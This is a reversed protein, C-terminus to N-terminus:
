APIFGIAEEESRSATVRLERRPKCFAGIRQGYPALVRDGSKGHRDVEPEVLQLPSYSAADGLFPKTSTGVFYDDIYKRKVIGSSWTSDDIGDRDAEM